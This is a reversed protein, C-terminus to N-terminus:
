ETEADLDSTAEDLVLVAPNRVLARAIELRQRQGGSMNTGGENLQADYGGPMNLILEHIAADICAQVLDIEPVTPDWLTLNERVTGAFRSSIEGVFRQTYFGVRLRLTHWLFQGSMSIALLLM